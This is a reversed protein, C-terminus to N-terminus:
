MKIQTIACLLVVTPQRSHEINVTDTQMKVIEPLKKKLVIGHFDGSKFFAHMKRM